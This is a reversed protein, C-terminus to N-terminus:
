GRGRISSSRSPSAAPPRFATRTRPRATSPRRVSRSSARRSRVSCVITAEQNATVEYAVTIGVNDDAIVSFNAPLTLTLAPPTGVSVQFSAFAHQRAYRHRLLAGHDRRERVHKGLGALLHSRGLRLGRRGRHRQVDRGREQVGPSRRRCRSRRGTTDGVFVRFSATDSGFSDTATLHGPLDHRAPFRGRLHHAPSRRRRRRISSASAKLMSTSTRAPLARPRPASRGRAITIPPPLNAFVTLTARGAM